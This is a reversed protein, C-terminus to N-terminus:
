KGATVKQLLSEAAAGHTLNVESPILIKNGPLHRYLGNPWVDEAIFVHLFAFSDGTKLALCTRGRRNAMWVNNVNGVEALARVAHKKQYHFVNVAFAQVLKQPALACEVNLTRYCDHALHHRTDISCMIFANQVPVKFRCVDEDHLFPLFRRATGEVTENLNSIKPQCFNNV